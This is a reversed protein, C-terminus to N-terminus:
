FHLIVRLSKSLYINIYKEVLLFILEFLFCPILFCHYISWRPQCVLSSIYFHQIKLSSIFCFSILLLLILLLPFNFTQKKEHKIPSSFYRILEPNNKLNYSFISLIRVKLHGGTRSQEADIRSSTQVFFPCPPSVLM